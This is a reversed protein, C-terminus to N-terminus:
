YVPGRARQQDANGWLLMYRANHEIFNKIIGIKREKKKTKKM